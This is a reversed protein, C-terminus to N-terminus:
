AATSDGDPPTIIGDEFWRVATDLDYLVRQGFCGIPEPGSGTCCQREFTKWAWPLGLPRLEEWIQRRTYRRKANAIDAV